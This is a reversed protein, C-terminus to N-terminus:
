EGVVEPIIASGNPIFAVSPKRGLKKKVYEIGHELGNLYIFFDALEVNKKDVSSHILIDVGPPKVKGLHFKFVRDNLRSDSGLGEKCEGFVVIVGNENVITCASAVVKKLQKVSTTVPWSDTVLVADFKSTKVRVREQCISAGRRHSDIVHGAVMDLVENEPGLVANYNFVNNCLLAAEELEDRVINNELNGLRASPHIKYFHNRLIFHRGTCGPVLNKVGGSFGAFYHPKIGGILIVLDTEVALRNIFVKEPSKMRAETFVVKDPDKALDHFQKLFSNNLRNPFYEWKPPVDGVYTLNEYDKSDHNYFSYSNIIDVDIGLMKPDIAKHTGTAIVFRVREKRHNGMTQLVAKVMKNLPLKRTNDSVVITVNQSLGIDKISFSNIPNELAEYFVSDNKRQLLHENRVTIICDLDINKLSRFGM